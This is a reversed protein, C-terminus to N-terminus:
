KARVFTVPDLDPLVEGDVDRGTSSFSYSNDNIKRYIHIASAVRGDGLTYTINVYWADGDKTWSGQGVGGDSDFVWSHIKKDASDYGIYQIGELEDHDLVKLTFHQKIFNKYKDWTFQNDIDVNDDTDQWNGILWALEQLNEFHSPPPTVTVERVRQMLWNGNENRLDAVFVSEIPPQGKITVISKGKETAKDSGSFSLSDIKIKLDPTEKESFIGEFLRQIAPRGEFTELTKPNIYIADETYAAALRAADRQNYAQTYTDALQRIEVEDKSKESNCSYTIVSFLILLVVRFLAQM